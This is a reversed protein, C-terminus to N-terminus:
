PVLSERLALVRQVSGLFASRALAGRRLAGALGNAASAGQSESGCLMLDMGARAALVARNGITGFSKLAGAGLADTITVGTFGLRQRLENQVVLTSLGAPRSDIATYRAWSVMVLRVGAGIAARFPLEDVGRLTALPVSLTVPRLDTNQSQSAAGLGPFHKATAAVGTQQQAKVFAAGLKAVMRPNRGYSRGYQDIFDGADRYVDLVPALNLNMGVSRLLLGAGRGAQSAALSPNVSLGIQKESLLPAGPLRRVIGGEQDAMLLLPLKVPSQRAASQLRRVVRGIQALSSINSKFFVVGAVEGARIRALLSAPPTLGSYGYVVRQGALQAPTLRSLPVSNAVPTRTTASASAAASASPSATAIAGACAAVLLACSLTVVGVAAAFLGARLRLRCLWNM